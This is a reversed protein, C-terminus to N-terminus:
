VIRKNIRPLEYGLWATMVGARLQQCSTRAARSKLRRGRRLSRLQAPRPSAASTATSSLFRNDVKTAFDLPETAPGAREIKIV